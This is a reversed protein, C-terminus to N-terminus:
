CFLTEDLVLDNWAVTTFYPALTIDPITAVVGKAGNAILAAILQDYNPKFETDPDTLTGTGLAGGTLAYILVDNNGIWSTFFTPQSEQVMELYSMNPDKGGLMRYFFPNAQPSAGYGKVTIDKVRIGNVGLNNFPGEVQDLWNPDEPFWGPTPTPPTTTIDLDAVYLYGSGNGPIDPQTFDISSIENMQQGILNPYSQMQSEAYLGNDAIGATLSNGVAIYTSFDASGSSQKPVEIEPNCGYIMTM